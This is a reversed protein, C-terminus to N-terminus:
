HPMESYYRAIAEIEEDTIHRSMFRMEKHPRKGSRFNKLQEVLYRDHQGALNPVEVDRAIGDAGHCPACEVVVDSLEAKDIAWAASTFTCAAVLAIVSSCPTKM